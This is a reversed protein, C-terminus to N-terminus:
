NRRRNSKITHVVIGWVDFENEPTIEIPRFNHNSPMLFLRNGRVRIRKLTFEGDVACVALDGDLPELSRDIVIIDGEDIGEEVMSLGVVRALFTAAPHRILERNLDITETICEQAPSPFGARVGGDAFPVELHSAVEPALFALQITNHENM